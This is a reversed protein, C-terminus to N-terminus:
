KPPQREGWKGGRNSGNKEVFERIEDENNLKIEQWNQRLIRFVEVILWNMTEDLHEGEFSVSIRRDITEIKM